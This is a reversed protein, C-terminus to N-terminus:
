INRINQNSPCVRTFKHLNNDKLTTNPPLMCRRRKKDINYNEFEIQPTIDILQSLCESSCKKKRLNKDQCFENCANTNPCSIHDRTPRKFYLQNDTNEPDLTKLLLYQDKDVINKEHNSLHQNSILSIWDKNEKGSYIIDDVTGHFSEKKKIKKSFLLFFVFAVIFILFAIRFNM